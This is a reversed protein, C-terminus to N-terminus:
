GPGNDRLRPVKVEQFGGPVQPRYHSQKANKNSLKRKTVERRSASSMIWTYIVTRTNLQERSRTVATLDRGQNEGRFQQCVAPREIEPEKHFYRPIWTSISTVNRLETKYATCFVPLLRTRHQWLSNCVDKTVPKSKRTIRIRESDKLWVKSQSSVLTQRPIKLSWFLANGKDPISGQDKWFRQAM